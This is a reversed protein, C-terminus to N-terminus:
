RNLTATDRKRAFRRRLAALTTRAPGTVDSLRDAHQVARVLSRREAPTVDAHLFLASLEDMDEVNM